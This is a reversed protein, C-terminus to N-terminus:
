QRIILFDSVDGPDGLADGLILFVPNAVVDGDESDAVYVKYVLVRVVARLESGRLRHIM